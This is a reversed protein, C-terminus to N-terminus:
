VHIKEAIDGIVPIKYREGSLAKIFGIIMLVVVVFWVVWGIVPIVGIFSAIFLILGQKAHFKVFEDEKKIILMVISLIWVYSLAAMLNSDGTAAPKVPNNKQEEM